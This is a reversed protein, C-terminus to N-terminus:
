WNEFISTTISVLANNSTTAVSGYQTVQKSINCMQITVLRQLRELSDEVQAIEDRKWFLKLVARFCSWRSGPNSTAKIKGVITLLKSCDSDCTDLLNGLSAYSDQLTSFPNETALDEDLSGLFITTPSWEGQSHISRSPEKIHAAKKAANSVNLSVTKLKLYINELSMIESSDSTASNCLTVSSTLIKSTITIFQVIAAAVGLASVPDM